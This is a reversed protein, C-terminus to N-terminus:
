GTCPRQPPVTERRWVREFRERHIHRQLVPPDWAGRPVEGDKVM